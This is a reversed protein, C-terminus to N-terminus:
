PIELATKRIECRTADMDGGDADIRHFDIAIMRRSHMETERKQGVRVGRHNLTVINEMSASPRFPVVDRTRSLKVDVFVARNLPDVQGLVDRHASSRPLCQSRDIRELTEPM